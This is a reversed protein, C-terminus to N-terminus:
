IQEWDVVYTNASLMPFYDADYVWRGRHSSDASPNPPDRKAESLTMPPNKAWYGSGSKGGRPWRIVPWIVICQFKPYFNVDSTVYYNKYIDSGDATASTYWGLFKQPGQRLKQQLATGDLEDYAWTIYKPSDINENIYTIANTNYPVTFEIYQRQTRFGRYYFSSTASHKNDATHKTINYVRLKYTRIEWHAYLTVKPLSTESSKAFIKTYKHLDTINEIKMGGKDQTYWGKFTAANSILNNFNLSLGKYIWSNNQYAYFGDAFFAYISSWWSDSSSYPSRYDISNGSGDNILNLDFDIWGKAYKLGSGEEGMIELRYKEEGNIILQRVIDNDNIKLGM